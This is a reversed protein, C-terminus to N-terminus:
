NGAVRTSQELQQRAVRFSDQLSQRCLTMFSDFAPRNIADVLDQVSDSPTRKLLYLYAYLANVSIEGAVSQRYAQLQKDLMGESYVERSKLATVTALLQKRIEVKLDTELATQQLEQDLSALLSLRQQDPIEQMLRYRYARVAKRVEPDALRQQLVQLQQLNGSRVIADLQAQQAVPFDRQLRAVMDRQLQEPGLRQELERTILQLHTPSLDLPANQLNRIEQQILYDAQQLVDAVGSQEIYANWDPTRAQQVTGAGTALVLPALLSLVLMLAVRLASM